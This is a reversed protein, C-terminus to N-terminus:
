RPNPSSLLSTPQMTGDKELLGTAYAVGALAAFLDQRAAVYQSRAAALQTEANLLDLIGILGAKYSDLALAQSNTASKLLAASFELKQLATRYTHYRAWVDASAALEAQKLQAEAASAQAIAIDRSSTTQYGNFLTWRLSIGAGYAWDDDQLEKGTYTDYYDRSLSGNIYLSPWFAAKAVRVAAQSAAALARLSAIDPRRDLSADILQRLDQDALVPPAEDAPMAINLVTDAPVGLALCLAGGAIKAQGQASSRVYRAQDYGTQAQLVDLETGTGVSKSTRAADLATEADKVTAEAAAIASRASVTAYYAVAVSYLVDQVARNFAYDAAYVTQLAQEVAAGRGGGFNFVLYNVQLGPGLKLFETDFANTNADVGQWQGGGTAVIEPMFLGQVQRVQAASARAQHWRQRTQPNNALAVDALDALSLVHADALTISRAAQWSAASPRADDPPQWLAVPSGPVTPHACGALVGALTVAALGAIHTKIM